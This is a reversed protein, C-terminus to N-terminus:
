SFKLLQAIKGLIVLFKSIMSRLRICKVYKVDDKNRMLVVVVFFFDKIKKLRKTCKQTHIINYYSPLRNENM